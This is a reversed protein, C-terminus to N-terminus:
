KKLTDVSEMNRRLGNGLAVLVPLKVRLPLGVDPSVDVGLYM